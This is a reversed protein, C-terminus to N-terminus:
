GGLVKNIRCNYTCIAELCLMESDSNSRAYGIYSKMCRHHSLVMGEQVPIAANNANNTIGYMCFTHNTCKEWDIVGAHKALMKCWKGISNTGVPNSINLYYNINGFQEIQKNLYATTLCYCYFRTQRLDCMSQFKKLLLYCDLPNDPNCVHLNRM